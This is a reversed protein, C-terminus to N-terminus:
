ADHTLQSRSEVSRNVQLAAALNHHKYLCGRAYLYYRQRRLEQSLFLVAPEPDQTVLLSYQVLTPAFQHCGPLSVALTWMLQSKRTQPKAAPQSQVRRLSRRSPQVAFEHPQFEYPKPHVFLRRTATSGAALDRTSM